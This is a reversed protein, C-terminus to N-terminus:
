VKRANWGPNKTCDRFSFFIEKQFLLILATYNIRHDLEGILPTVDSLPCDSWDDINEDNNDIHNNNNNIYNKISLNPSQKVVFAVPDPQWWTFDM